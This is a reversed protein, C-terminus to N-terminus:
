LFFVRSIRYWLSILKLDITQLHQYILPHTAPQGTMQANPVKQAETNSKSSYYGAGDGSSMDQLEDGNSPHGKLEFWVHGASGRLRDSSRAFLVHCTPLESM